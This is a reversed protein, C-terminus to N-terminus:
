FRYTLDTTEYDVEVLAEPEIYPLYRARALQALVYSVAEDDHEGEPAKRTSAELSSLETFTSFTHIVADGERFYPSVVDYMITKGAATNLWGPKKDLGTLLRTLYGETSCQLIFAHGHNNREVLVPASNYYDSLKLTLSAHTEPIFTGAFYAVEEGTFRSVVHTSSPDSHSNGEAPDAGMVYDDGPVPHKYIKLGPIFPMRQPFYLKEAETPGVMDQTYLLDLVPDMQIWCRSLWHPPILKDQTLGSLAEAVTAPYHEHLEDLSGTRTLIELKKDEYWSETRGPRVTWPFFVAKWPSKGSVAARFMKKFDSQPTRAEARSVMFIKGGGDITPKVAGIMKRQDEVLDAEDIMVYTVTYSDGANTPFARAISYNALKWTKENNLVVGMKMWEPLHAYMGKLREESLLYNAEEQRKSFISIQTSPYFVMLWLGFALGLWSIGLQRAKLVQVMRDTQLTRLLEKQADWLHFPIWNPDLPDSADYIWCYNNVFYVVDSKCRDWESSLESSHELAKEPALITALQHGLSNRLNM